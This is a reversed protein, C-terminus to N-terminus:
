VLPEHLNIPNGLKKQARFLCSQYQFNDDLDIDPQACRQCRALRSAPEPQVGNTRQGDTQHSGGAAHLAWAPAAVCEATRGDTRGVPLLRGQRLQDCESLRFDEFCCAVSDSELGASDLGYGWM